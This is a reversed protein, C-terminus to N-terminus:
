KSATRPRRGSYSCQSVGISYPRGSLTRGPATLGPTNRGVTIVIDAPMAPDTKTIVTVGFTQQLYTITDPMKTEAGNYAVIVTNAPM